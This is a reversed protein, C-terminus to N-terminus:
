KSNQPLSKYFGKLFLWTGASVEKVYNGPFHGIKGKYEGQWWGNDFKKLVTLEEGQAFSLERDTKGKYAYLTRAKQGQGAAVEVAVQPM